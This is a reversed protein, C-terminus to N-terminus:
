REIARLAQSFNDVAIARIGPTGAVEAFNEKPVLFLAAGASRAAAIKERAGEIPGVTGDFDITGTGAIRPSVLAFPRLFRFTQLAFMLGGSAGAINPLHFAVPVPLVPRQYITTLFVGLVARGRYAITPVRLTSAAGRRMVTVAVVSGPSVRALRARMAAVTDVPHGDIAALLDLPQLATARTGRAFSLVFLRSIPARVNYGALREAVAAAIAQSESMAERQVGQYEGPTVGGPVVAATRIIRAGPIFGGLLQLVTVHSAFRVDTLFLVGPPAATHGQVTIVGNLNVARGPLLLSFPTRVFSVAAALLAATLYLALRDKAIRLRM